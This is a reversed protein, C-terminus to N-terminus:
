PAPDPTPEPDPTPVVVPDLTVTGDQHPTCAQVKSMHYATCGPVVSELFMATATSITFVDLAKNGMEALILSPNPNNWVLDISRGWAALLDQHSSAVQKLIKAVTDKAEAQQVAETPTIM